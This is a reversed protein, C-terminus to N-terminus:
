ARSLSRLAAEMERILERKRKEPAFIFGETVVVQQRTSDIQVYSVFPGGMADHEMEWLGCVRQVPQGNYMMVESVLGFEQTTMYQGEHYGQINEKMVENRKTVFYKAEGWGEGNPLSDLPYTYICFNLANERKTSSAWLFDKGPKVSNIDEPVFVEYGFQAKVQELVVKSHKKRLYSLERELEADIFINLIQQRNREVLEAFEDGNRASITLVNQPHAYVDRAIRLGPKEVHKGVDVMVINAFVQFRKNFSGPNVTLVKFNKESQPLGPIDSELLEKLTAGNQTELWGKDGVILLEYPASQTTSGVRKTQREGGSCAVMFVMSVISVISVMAVISVMSVMAVMSVM